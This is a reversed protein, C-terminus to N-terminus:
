APAGPQVPPEAPPRRTRKPKAEKQPQPQPQPQSQPEPAATDNKVPADAPPFDHDDDHEAFLICGPYPCMRTVEESAPPKTTELIALDLWASALKDAIEASQVDELRGDPGIIKGRVLLKSAISKRMEAVAADRSNAPLKAIHAAIAQIDKFTIETAEPAEAPPEEKTPEPEAQGPEETAAAPTSASAALPFQFTEQKEQETMDHVEVAEETDFRIYSKQGAVPIDYRIKCGIQATEGGKNYKQALESVEAAHKKIRESFIGDSVKKEAEADEKASQAQAMQQATAALEEPTYKEFIALTIEEPRM